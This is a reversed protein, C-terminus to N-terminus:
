FSPEIIILIFDVYSVYNSALYFSIIHHSCHDIFAFRYINVLHFALEFSSFPFIHLGRLLCVALRRFFTFHLLWCVQFAICMRGRIACVCLIVKIDGPLVRSMM